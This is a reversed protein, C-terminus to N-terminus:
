LRLVHRNVNLNVVVEVGQLLTVCIEWGMEMQMRRSHIACLLATIAPMVLAMQMLTLKARTLLQRVTTLLILFETVTQTSYQVHRQLIVMGRIQLGQAEPLIAFALLVQAAM